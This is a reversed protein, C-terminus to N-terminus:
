APYPPRKMGKCSHLLYLTDQKGTRLDMSHERHERRRRTNKVFKMWPTKM